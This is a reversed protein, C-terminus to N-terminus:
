LIYTAGIFVFGIYVKKLMTFRDLFIRVSKKKWILAYAAALCMNQYENGLQM